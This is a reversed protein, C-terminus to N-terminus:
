EQFKVIIDKQAGARSNGASFPTGLIDRSVDISWSRVCTILQHFYPSRASRKASGTLLTLAVFMLKVFYSSNLNVYFRLNTNM